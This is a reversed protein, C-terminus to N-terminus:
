TDNRALWITCSNPYVLSVFLVHSVSHFNVERCCVTTERREREEVVLIFRKVTVIISVGGVSGRSFDLCSESVFNLTTVSLSKDTRPM